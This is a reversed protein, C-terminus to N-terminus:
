RPVADHPLNSARPRPCTRSDGGAVKEPPFDRLDPASPTTRNVTPQEIEVLGRARAAVAEVARAAGGGSATGTTLASGTAFTPGTALAAATAIGAALTPGSALATAVGLIGALTPRSGVAATAPAVRRRGTGAARRARVHVTPAVRPSNRVRVRLHDPWALIGSVASRALRVFAGVIRVLQRGALATATHGLYRCRGKGIAMHQLRLQDM